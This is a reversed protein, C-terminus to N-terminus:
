SQLLSNVGSIKTSESARLLILVLILYQKIITFGKNLIEVFFYAGELISIFWLSNSCREESEM